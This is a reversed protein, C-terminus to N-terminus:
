RALVHHFLPCIGGVEGMACSGRTPWSRRMISVECDCESCVLYLEEPLTILGVCLSGSLV